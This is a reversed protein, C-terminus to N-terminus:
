SMASQSSRTPQSLEAPASRIRRLPAGIRRKGDTITLGVRTVGAAALGDLAATVVLRALGQRKSDAATMVYAIVTREDLHSVLCAARRERDVVSDAWAGGWELWDALEAEADALSEGEDDITGAYADLM